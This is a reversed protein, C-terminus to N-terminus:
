GGVPLPSREALPAEGRAMAILWDPPQHVPTYPREAPADLSLQELGALSVWYAIREDTDIVICSPYPGLQFGANFCWSKGIRDAWSGDKIFPAQHVHGSFVMDPQYDEIWRRVEDAGFCKDGAWGVPSESPPVHIVWIWNAPRLAAEEALHASIWDRGVDGDWWPLITFRCNEMVLSDGDGPVDLRRTKGMWRATLEGNADRVDLDHNGSCVLLRKRERIKRFYKQAVVAQAPRDVLSARDLLDGALVVLDVHPAAEVVWDFKRLDYHLDAALLIKM